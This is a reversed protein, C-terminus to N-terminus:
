KSHFSVNNKGSKLLTSFSLTVKYGQMPVSDIKMSGDHAEVIQRVLLLGLGHRLDLREDTSEMYHPKGELEQLKEPTLGVGNDAVSLTLTEETYKLPRM